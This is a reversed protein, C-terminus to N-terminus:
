QRSNYPIDLQRITERRSCQNHSRYGPIPTGPELAIKKRLIETIPTPRIPQFVLACQRDPFETAQIVNYGTVLTLFIAIAVTGSHRAFSGILRGGFRAVANLTFRTIAVIAVSSFILSNPGYVCRSILLSPDMIINSM